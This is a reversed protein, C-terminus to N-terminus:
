WIIISNKANHLDIRFIFSKKTYYYNSEPPSEWSFPNFGGLIEGSEKVKLVTLTPGKNDCKQHFVEPTFGDRSGRILLPNKVIWNSVVAFHDLQILVSSNITDGFSYDEDPTKVGESSFSDETPSLSPSDFDATLNPSSSEADSVDDVLDLDTGESMMGSLTDFVEQIVPRKEPNMDWCRTYLQIYEEPTGEVPVERYGKYIKITM